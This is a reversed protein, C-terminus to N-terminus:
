FSAYASVSISVGKTEKLGSSPTINWYIYQANYSNIRPVTNAFTDQGAGDYHGVTMQHSHPGVADAQYAGINGGDYPTNDAATFVANQGAVRWFLGRHDAVRMYLGSANRTGSSTCKYWFPATANDSSGVWMLDCLEQYDAIKIIQYKLPLWRKQALEFPSIERFSIHGEGVVRNYDVLQRVTVRRTDGPQQPMIPNYANPQNVPLYDGDSLPAANLLQGITKGNEM